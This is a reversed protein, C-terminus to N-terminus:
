KHEQKNVQIWKMSDILKTKASYSSNHVKKKWFIFFAIEIKLHGGGWMCVYTPELQMTRASGIYVLTDWLFQSAKAEPSSLDFVDAVTDQRFLENLNSLM